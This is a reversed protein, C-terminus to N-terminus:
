APINDILRAKGMWAAALIRLAQGSVPELLTKADRVTCYDIKHFGADKLNELAWSEVSQVDQGASIKEAMAYLTKNLHLASQYEEPSLYKNRSSLALGNEDRVTEVGVIKVPLDYTEVLWRIVQLQQYDKEGFLAIDPEVAEFLRKVVTAVGGFFHPRFEGELPNAIEGPAIDSQAKKDPYLDKEQPLWVAHCGAEELKKCDEETTRPYSEFDENPAFQTPNVFISAIVQDAHKLAEYVLAMHGDHLAGMTPVFAVTDDLSSRWNKLTELDYLVIMIKKQLRKQTGEFIVTCQDCM